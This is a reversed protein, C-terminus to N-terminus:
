YRNIKKKAQAVVLFKHSYHDEESPYLPTVTVNDFINRILLLTPDLVEKESFTLIAQGREPALVDHLKTLFDQRTQIPICFQLVAAVDFRQKRLRHQTAQELTMPIAHKRDLVGSQIAKHLEPVDPDVGVVEKAGYKRFIPVNRGDRTGVDLVRRGAFGHFGIGYATRGPAFHDELPVHPRPWGQDEGHGRRKKELLNM